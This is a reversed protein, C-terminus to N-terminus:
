EAVVGSGCGRPRAARSLARKRSPSRSRMRRLLVCPM